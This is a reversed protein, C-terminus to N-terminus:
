GCDRGNQGRFRRRGSYNGCRNRLVASFGCMTEYLEGLQLVSSYIDPIEYTSGEKIGYKVM